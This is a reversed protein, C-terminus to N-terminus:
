PLTTLYSNVFDGFRMYDGNALVNNVIKTGGQCIM